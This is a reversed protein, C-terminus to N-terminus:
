RRRMFSGPNCNCSYGDLFDCLGALFQTRIQEFLPSRWDPSTLFSKNLTSGRPVNEERGKVYDVVYFSCNPLSFLSRLAPSLPPHNAHCISRWLFFISFILVITRTKSSASQNHLIHARKDLWSQDSGARMPLGPALTSTSHIFFM